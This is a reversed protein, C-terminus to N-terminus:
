GLTLQRWIIFVEWHFHARYMKQNYRQFHLSLIKCWDTAFIHMLLTVWAEGLYLSISYFYALFPSFTLSPEMMVAPILWHASGTKQGMPVGTPNSICEAQQINKNPVVVQRYIAKLLNKCDFVIVSLYWWWCNRFRLRDCNWLSCLEMFQEMFNWLTVAEHISATALLLYCIWILLGVSLDYLPFAQQPTEM